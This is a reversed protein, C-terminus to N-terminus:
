LGEAEFYFRVDKDGADVGAPISTRLWFSKYNTTCTDPTNKDLASASGYGNNNTQWDIMAGTTTSVEDWSYWTDNDWSLQGCKYGDSDTFALLKITFNKIQGINGNCIRYEESASTAGLAADPLALVYGGTNGPGSRTGFVGNRWLRYLEEGTEQDSALHAIAQQNTPTTANESVRNFRFWRLAKGNNGTFAHSLTGSANQTEDGVDIWQTTSAYSDEDQLSYHIRYLDDDADTLALTDINYRKGLDIATFKSTLSVDNVNWTTDGFALYQLYREAALSQIDTPNIIELLSSYNAPKPVVSFGGMTWTASGDSTGDFGVQWYKGTLASIDFLNLGTALSTTATWASWTINDVSSKIKCALTTNAPVNAQIPM